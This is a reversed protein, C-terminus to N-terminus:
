NDDKIAKLIICDIRNEMDEKFFRFGAKEFIHQSAINDKKIYAFIENNSNIWFYNTAIKLIEAGLGLGRHGPAVTIGIITNKNTDFRVTAIQTHHYYFIYIKSLPDILKKKLWSIHQNWEITEPIFSNQRTNPDNAWEFLIKADNITADRIEIKM